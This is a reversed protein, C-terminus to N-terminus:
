PTPRRPASARLVLASAPCAARARPRSPAEPPPIHPRRQAPARVLGGGLSAALTRDLQAGLAPGDAGRRWRGGRTAELERADPARGGLAHALRLALHRVEVGGGLDDHVLRHAHLSPERREA